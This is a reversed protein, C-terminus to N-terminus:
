GSPVFFECWLCFFCGKGIKRTFVLRSINVIHRLNYTATFKSLDDGSSSPRAFSYRRKLSGVGTPIKLRNSLIRKCLRRKVIFFLGTFPQPPKLLFDFTLMDFSHAM